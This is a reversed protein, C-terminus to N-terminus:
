IAEDVISILLEEVQAAVSPIAGKPFFEALLTPRQASVYTQGSRTYVSIRCPLFTSIGIDEALVKAAFPAGCVEVIKLPDHAFGKEALTAAVDHVHLVRMGHRAAAAEVREVCAAFPRSSVATYNVEQLAKSM